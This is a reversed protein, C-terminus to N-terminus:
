FPWWGRWKGEQKLKEREAKTAELVQEEWKKEEGLKGVDLGQSQLQKIRYEIIMPKFIFIGLGNSWGDTLLNIM